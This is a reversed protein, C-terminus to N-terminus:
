KDRNNLWPLIEEPANIIGDAEWSNINESEEIYGYAAILTTMNARNGATIDREADGVYICKNPTHKILECAHLLPAPDPKRQALTDGSVVCAARQSLNLKELLETTLWHPKNTVIGWAINQTELASLVADMGPFLTTADAIHAHYIGLLQECLSAFEPDHFTVNFGLKLLGQSGHSVVPRIIELPLTTHRKLELLTNLAYAMDPATDLLTGDLDFLVASMNTNDM